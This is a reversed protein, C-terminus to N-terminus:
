LILNPLDLIPSNQIVINTIILLALIIILMITTLLWELRKTRFTKYLSVCILIFLIYSALASYYYEFLPVSVLRPVMYSGAVYLNIM